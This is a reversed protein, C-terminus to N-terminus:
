HFGGTILKHQLLVLCDCVFVCHIWPPCKIVAYTPLLNCNCISSTHRWYNRLQNIIHGRRSTLQDIMTHHRRARLSDVRSNHSEALLVSCVASKWSSTLQDIITYWWTTTPGCRTLEHTGLYWSYFQAFLQDVASEWSSFTLQNIMTRCRRARLSDARSNQSGALQDLRVASQCSVWSPLHTSQDNHPPPSGATLWCTLQSISRIPRMSCSISLQSM